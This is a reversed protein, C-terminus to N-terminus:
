SVDAGKEFTYQGQNVYFEHNVIDFMGVVSDAKRYCPIFERVTTGDIIFKAYYIKATSGGYSGKVSFLRITTTTSSVMYSTTRNYAVSDNVKMTLTDAGLRNFITEITYIKTVDISIDSIGYGGNGVGCALKGSRQILANVMPITPDTGSIYENNTTSPQYTILVDLLKGQQVVNADIGTDIYAFAYPSMNSPKIWEVQQYEPPLTVANEEKELMLRRRSVAM